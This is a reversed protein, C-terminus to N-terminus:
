HKRGCSFRMSMMHVLNRQIYRVIRHLVIGYVVVHHLGGHPKEWLFFRMHFINRIVFMCAIRVEYGVPVGLPIRERMRKDVGSRRAGDSVLQSCIPEGPEDDVNRIFCVLPHVRGLPFACVGTHRGDHRAQRQRVADCSCWAVVLVNTLDHVDRFPEGSLGNGTCAPLKGIDEV